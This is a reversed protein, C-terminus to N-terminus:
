LARIPIETLRFLILFAVSLFLSFRTMLLQNQSLEAFTGPWVNSATKTTFFAAGHPLAPEKSM